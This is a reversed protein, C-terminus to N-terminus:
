FCVEINPFVFECFYINKFLVFNSSYIVQLDKQHGEESIEPVTPKDEDSLVAM